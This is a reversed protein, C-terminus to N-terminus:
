RIKKKHRSFVCGRTTVKKKFAIKVGFYNIKRIYLKLRVVSFRDRCRYTNFFDQFINPCSVQCQNPKEGSHVRMHILLKYRANFPKTRRPCAMWFCSFDEGRKVEVHVKEIHDVLSSQDVFARFCDKWKCQLNSDTDANVKDFKCLDTNQTNEEQLLQNCEYANDTPSEPQELTDFSWFTKFDRNPKTPTSVNYDFNNIMNAGFEDKSTLNAIDGPINVDHTIYDPIMNNSHLHDTITNIPPLANSMNLPKNPTFDPLSLCMWPDINPSSCISKTQCNIEDYNMFDRDMARTAETDSYHSGQILEIYEPEFNFFDDKMPKNGTIPTLISATSNPPTDIFSHLLPFEVSEINFNGMSPKVFTSTSMWGQDKSKQQIKPLFHTSPSKPTLLVSSDCEIAYNEDNTQEDFKVENITNKLDFKFM